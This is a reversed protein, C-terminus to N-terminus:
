GHNAGEASEGPKASNDQKAATTATVPEVTVLAAALRSVGVQTGLVNLVMPDGARLVEIKRGACIGLRKLRLADDGDGAVDLCRYLGAVTSESLLSPPMSLM